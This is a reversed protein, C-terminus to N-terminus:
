ISTNKFLKSEINLLSVPRYNGVIRRHGKKHIPTVAATKWSDPIKRIKKINKFLKNLIKSIEASTKQFFVPPLGNPGRSKTVDIQDVIKQVTRKSILFNTLIPNESKIDTISFKQKPTFVSQIFENLMDVQENLNTSSINCSIMIKPLSPSKNLFKLHKLTADTNRTSLLKEQYEKRDQESFDTVLNELKHVQQKRYSIPKRKLLANETKLQKLLNSTHSTIWPALCQRPQTRRPVYVEIMQDLYQYLEKCMKNINTHCIPQFPNVAPYNNIGAYDANGFSRFNQPAPKSQTVPCELTTHVAMHNTCDYLTPFSLDKESSVFCNRYFAVDLTNQSCTPFDIAKRFMAEEFIELISNEEESSSSSKKWNTEPFNLDGCIIAPKSKPINKLLQQFDEVFYRYASGIPPQLIRLYSSGIYKTKNQLSLM